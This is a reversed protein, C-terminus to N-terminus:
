SQIVKKACNKSTLLFVTARGNSRVCSCCDKFRFYQLKGEAEKERIDADVTEEDGEASGPTAGPDGSATPIKNKTETSSEGQSDKANNNKSQNENPNSDTTM